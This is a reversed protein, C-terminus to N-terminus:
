KGKEERIIVRRLRPYNDKSLQPFSGKGHLMRKEGDKLGVVVSQDFIEKRAEKKLSGGWPPKEWTGV